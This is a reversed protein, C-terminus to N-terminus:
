VDIEFYNVLYHIIGFKDTNNLQLLSMVFMSINCYFAPLVNHSYIKLSLLECSDIAAMYNALATWDSTMSNNLDNEIFSSLKQRNKSFAEDYKKVTSKMNNKFQKINLTQVPNAAYGLLLQYTKKLTESFHVKDIYTRITCFWRIANLIAIQRINSTHLSTIIKYFDKQCTAFHPILISLIHEGGFEAGKNFLTQKPYVATNYYQSKNLQRILNQIDCNKGTFYIYTGTTWPEIDSKYFALASCNKAYQCITNIKIASEKDEIHFDPIYAMLYNENWINFAAGTTHKYISGGCKGLIQNASELFAYEGNKIYEKYAFFLKLCDDNDSALRALHKSNLLYHKTSIQCVTLMLESAILLKEQETKANQLDNKCKDANALLQMRRHNDTQLETIKSIEILRKGIQDKNDSLIKAKKMMRIYISAHRIQDEIILNIAQHYPIYIAQYQKGEAIFTESYVYCTYKTVIILDIDSNSTQTGDAYSGTLLICEYCNKFQQKALHLIDSAHMILQHNTKTFAIKKEHCCSIRSLKINTNRNEKQRYGM